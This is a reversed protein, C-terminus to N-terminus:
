WEDLRKEATQYSKGIFTRIEKRRMRQRKDDSMTRLNESSQRIPHFEDYTHVIKQGKAKHNPSIIEDGTSDDYCPSVFEEDIVPVLVNERTLIIIQKRVDISAALIKGNGSEVETFDLYFHNGIIM